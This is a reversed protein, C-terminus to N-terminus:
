RRRGGARSAFMKTIKNKEITGDLKCISIQDGVAVSGAFIRGIALRGVYDNYDLNAV